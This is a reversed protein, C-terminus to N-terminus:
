TYRPSDAAPSATATFTILGETTSESVRCLNAWSISTWILEDGDVFRPVRDQGVPLGSYPEIGVPTSNRAVRICVPVALGLLGVRSEEVVQVVRGANRRGLPVGGGEVLGIPLGLHSARVRVEGRPEVRLDGGAPPGRGRLCLRLRACM